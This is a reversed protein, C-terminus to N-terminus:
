GNVLSARATCTIANETQKCRQSTAPFPAVTREGNPGLFVSGGPPPEGMCLFITASPPTSSWPDPEVHASRLQEAAFEAGVKVGIPGAGAKTCAASAERASANAVEAAQLLARDPLVLFACAGVVVASIAAIVVTRRRM